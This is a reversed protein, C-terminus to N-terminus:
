LNNSKALDSLRNSISREFHKSIEAGALQNWMEAQELWEQKRADYELAYQRCMSAMALCHRLEKMANRGLSSELGAKTVAGIRM